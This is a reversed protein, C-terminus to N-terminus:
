KNGPPPPMRVPGRPIMDERNGWIFGKLLHGFDIGIKQKKGIKVYPRETEFQELIKTVRNKKVSGDDNMKCYLIIMLDGDAYNVKSGVGHVDGNIFIVIFDAPLNNTPREWDGYVAVPETGGGAKGVVIRGQLFDRLEVDPNIKSPRIM